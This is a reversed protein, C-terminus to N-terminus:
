PTVVVKQKTFSEILGILSSAVASLEAPTPATSTAQLMLQLTRATDQYKQYAARVQAEKDAGPHNTVDYTAWLQMGVDVTHVTVGLAIYAAKNAACSVALALILILAPAIRRAARM